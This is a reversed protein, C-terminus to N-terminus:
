NNGIGQKKEEEKKPTKTWTVFMKWAIQGIWTKRGSSIILIYYLLYINCTKSYIIFINYEFKTKTSFHECWMKQYINEIQMGKM